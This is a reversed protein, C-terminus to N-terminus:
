YKKTTPYDFDLLEQLTIEFGLAISILIDLTPNHRNMEINQLTKKEIGAKDALVQQSLKHKRRLSRLQQSFAILSEPNRM